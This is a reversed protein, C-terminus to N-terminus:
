EDDAGPAQDGWAAWGPAAERAFMELRPGHSRAEIWARMEDPKRSHKTREGHVVSGLDRRDSRVDPSAGRGRTALLCVEHQGRAYQGLGLQTSDQIRRLEELAVAPDLAYLQVLHDLQPLTALKRKRWAVETVYRFGLADIVRHADERHNATAWMYLHADDAVHWVGSQYIVRVIDWWPLLRYHRDAGRKVRGSGRELWPADVLITRFAGM